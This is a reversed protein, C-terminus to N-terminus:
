KVKIDLKESQKSADNAEYQIDAQWDGDMFLQINGVDLCSNAVKKNSYKAPGTGHNMDPMTFSIKTLKKLNECCLNANLITSKTPKQAFKLTCKKVKVEKVPMNSKKELVEKKGESKHAHKECSYLPSTLFILVVTLIITKM